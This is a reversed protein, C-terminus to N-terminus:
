MKKLIKFIPFPHQRPGHNEVWRSTFHVFLRTFLKLTSLNLSNERIDSSVFVSILGVEVWDERLVLFGTFGCNEEFKVSEFLVVFFDLKESSHIDSFFWSIWSFDCKETRKSIQPNGPIDM